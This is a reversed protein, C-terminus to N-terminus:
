PMGKLTALATQLPTPLSARHDAQSLWTLVSARVQPQRVLDEFLGLALAEPQAAIQALLPALLQQQAILAAHRTVLVILENQNLTLESQLRQQLPPILAPDVNNALARLALAATDTAPDAQQWLGIFYQSLSPPLQYPELAVVLAQQVSAPYNAFGKMMAGTLREAASDALTLRAAVDHLGQLGLQEWDLTQPAQLYAQAYEFHISPPQELVLKLTANLAAQQTQTPTFLAPHQNLQQQQTEGLDTTLQEGLANVGLANLLAECFNDRLANDLLGQEDLPLQLFWIFPQNAQAYFCIALQANGQQPYPYPLQQAEVAAFLTPSLRNLGRGVDYILAHAGSHELIESITM